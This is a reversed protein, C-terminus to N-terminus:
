RSRWRRKVPRSWMRSLDTLERQFPGRWVGVQGVVSHSQKAFNWGELSDM